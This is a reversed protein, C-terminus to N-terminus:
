LTQQTVQHRLAAHLKLNLTTKQKKEQTLQLLIEQVINVTYNIIKLNLVRLKTDRM